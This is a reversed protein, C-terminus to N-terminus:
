PDYFTISYQVQDSPCAQLGIADDYAWAYASCNDHVVDAYTMTTVPGANCTPNTNKAGACCYEDAPSDAPNHDGYQNSWNRFTLLGCPSYCGAYKNGKDPNLATL